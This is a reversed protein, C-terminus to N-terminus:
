NFASGGDVLFSQGTIFESDDSMLFSSPAWWTLRDSSASSPVCRSSRPACRWPRMAPIRRRCPAARHWWTSASPTRASSAPSPAHSASSPARRLWTTPGAHARGPLGDVLRHQRHQRRRGRPPTARLGQLLVVGGQHQAPVCRGVGRRPHARVHSRTIPIVNLMGANNVLGDIRGFRTWQAQQCRTRGSGARACRHHHGPRQRWCSASAQRSRTMASAMSTSCRRRQGRGRALRESYARGIGHASGTVM